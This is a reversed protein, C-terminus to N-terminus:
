QVRKLFFSGFIIKSLRGVGLMHGKKLSFDMVNSCDVFEEDSNSTDRPEKKVRLM